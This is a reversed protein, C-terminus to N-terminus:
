GPHEIGVFNENLDSWSRLAVEDLDSYIGGYKWLMTFRMGDSLHSVRFDSRNWDGKEYWRQAPTDAFVHAVDLHKIILNDLDRLCKIGRNSDTPITSSAVHLLYVHRDPNHRAMAEVACAERPGLECTSTEIFFISNPHIYSEEGMSKPDSDSI